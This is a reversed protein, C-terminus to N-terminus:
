QIYYYVMPQTCKEGLETVSNTQFTKGSHSMSAHKKEVNNELVPM